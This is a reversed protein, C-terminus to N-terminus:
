TPAMAPVADATAALCQKYAMDDELIHHNLWATLFRFIEDRPQERLGQFYEWRLEEIKRCFGAHIRRHSELEPYGADAMIEEERQFHFETYNVLDDLVFEIVQRNGQGSALMLRNIIEVLRQHDFDLDPHGVSMEPVWRIFRAAQRRRELLLFERVVVPDFHRGAEAEIYALAEEVPWVKKYPRLSTLADFVDVLAVIRAALPIDEGALGAPYGKGDYREHHCAAIEAAKRLIEGNDSRKAARLLIDRGLAAHAQMVVREEPDLPGPKLLIRESIAIKGVDHLISALGIQEIFEDDIGAVGNAGLEAAIEVAGRAVRAVHEGTDTDRYEALTALTTITAHQTRLLRQHLQTQDIAVAITKVLLRLFGQEWPLLPAALPLYIGALNGEATEIYLAVRDPAFRCHRRAFAQELLEQAEREELRALPVSDLGGYRGTGALAITRAGARSGRFCMLGGATGIGKEHIAELAMLALDHLTRASAFHGAAVSATALARNRITDRMVTAITDALEASAVDQDFLLDAVGFQWLATKLAEPVPVRSRLMIAKFPNGRTRFLRRVQAALEDPAGGDWILLVVGIDEREDLLTRFDEEPARVIIDMAPLRRGASIRRKAVQAAEAPGLILLAPPRPTCARREFLSRCDDQAAPAASPRVLTEVM